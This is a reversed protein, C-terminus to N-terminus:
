AYTYNISGGYDETTCIPQDVPANCASEVDTHDYEHVHSSTVPSGPTSNFYFTFQTVSELFTKADSGFPPFPCAAIQSVNIPLPFICNPLPAFPIGTPDFNNRLRHSARLSPSPVHQNTVIILCISVHRTYTQQFFDTHYECGSILTWVCVCVCVCV